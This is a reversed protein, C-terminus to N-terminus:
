QGSEEKKGILYVDARPQELATAIRELTSAIRDLPEFKCNHWQRATVLHDCAPCV